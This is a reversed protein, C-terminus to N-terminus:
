SLMGTRSSAADTVNASTALPPWIPQFVHWQEPAQRIFGEFVTILEATIRHVDERLTGQRTARIPPGFVARYNGRVDHFVTCPMITAGSRLALVAAGPPVKTPRGFFPVEIGDGVIDRDAVLAVARGARLEALLSVSTDSSLRLIHMGLRERREIFWKTLEESAADEAVTTFPFGERKAWLGGVEWSGLHPLAFVIGGTRIAERIHEEGTAHYHRDLHRLDDPSLKAVDAWYRGYSAFSRRVLRALDRDSVAGVVQRLNQEVVLRPATNFAAGLRGVFAGLPIALRRPIFRAGFAALRYLFYSLRGDHAAGPRGM